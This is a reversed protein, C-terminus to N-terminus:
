GCWSSLWWCMLLLLMWRLQVAIVAMLADVVALAIAVLADVMAVFVVVLVTVVLLDVV